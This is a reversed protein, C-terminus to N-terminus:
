TKFDEPKHDIVNTVCILTSLKFNNILVQSTIPAKAKAVLDSMRLSGAAPPYFRLKTTVTQHGASYTYRHTQSVADNLSKNEVLMKLLKVTEKDTDDPTVLDTWGVYAKAGKNLFANALQERGPKLSWCGMAIVISKPFRGELNEIFRSTIAFYYKGPAYLYEGVTLLGNKLERRYKYDVFEESTFLDVTSNDERLASHVRLIIIGYNYKALGKFFAVDLSENHYNVSFGYSELISTVNEVFTPNPFEEGLQDIVAASLSFAVESGQFLLLSILFGVAIVVILIASITILKKRSPQKREKPVAKRKKTM